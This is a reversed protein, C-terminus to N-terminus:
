EVAEFPSLPVRRAIFLGITRVGPFAQGLVIQAAKFHTGSVLVDDCIFIQEPRPSALTQDIVYGAAIQQPTPRSQSSHAAGSSVPQIILERVDLPDAPSIGKLMQVIRDDYLPDAKCKSPPVPVFVTGRSTSGSVLKTFAEATERIAKLKYGWPSKGRYSVDKKFNFIHDNMRSYGFGQGASYDGFFWCEDSDSLYGHDRLTSADVKTLFSPFTSSSTM